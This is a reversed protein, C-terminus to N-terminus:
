IDDMFGAELSDLLLGGAVLGAAAGVGVGAVLGMGKVIAGTQTLLGRGWAGSRDCADTGAVNQSGALDVSMANAEVTGALQALRSQAAELASQLAMARQVLLYLADPQRACHELILTEATVDKDTARIRLLPELFKLLADRERRNM